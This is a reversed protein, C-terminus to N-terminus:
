FLCELCNFTNSIAIIVPFDSVDILKSESSCAVFVFTLIFLFLLSVSFFRFLHFDYNALVQVSQNDRSEILM